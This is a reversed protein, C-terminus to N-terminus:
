LKHVWKAMQTCARLLIQESIQSILGSWGTGMLYKPCVYGSVCECVCMCHNCAFYRCYSTCVKFPPMIKKEKQKKEGM